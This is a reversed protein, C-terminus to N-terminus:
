HNSWIHCNLNISSQSMLTLFLQLLLKVSVLIWGELSHKHERNPNLKEMLFSLKVQKFWIAKLNLNDEKGQEMITLLLDAYEIIKLKSDQCL